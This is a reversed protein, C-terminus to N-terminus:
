NVENENIFQWLKNNEEIINHHHAFKYMNERIRVIMRDDCGQIKHVIDKSNNPSILIGNNYNEIITNISGVGDVAVPIAGYAMAETIVKPTGEMLSPLVLFDSNRIEKIIVDKDNIYGKFLVNESVGISKAYKTYKDLYKGGGIVTLHYRKDKLLIMADLLDELRKRPEFSGIYILKRNNENGKKFYAEKHATSMYAHVPQGLDYKKALIDGATITITKRIIKRQLLDLGQAMVNFIWYKYNFRIGEIWDASVYSTLKFNEKRIANYATMCFISPFRLQVVQNEIGIQKVISQIERKIHYYRLKYWKLNSIKVTSYFIKPNVSSKDIIMKKTSPGIYHVEDFFNAYVDLLEDVARRNNLRKSNPDVLVQSIVILKRM